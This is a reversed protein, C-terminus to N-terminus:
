KSDKYSDYRITELQENFGIGWLNRWVQCKKDEM